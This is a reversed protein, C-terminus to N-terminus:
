QADPLTVIPCIKWKKTVIYAWLLAFFDVFAKAANAGARKRPKPAKVLPQYRDVLEGSSDLGFHELLLSFWEHPMDDILEWLSVEYLNERSWYRTTSAFEDIWRDYEVPDLKQEPHLLGFLTQLVERNLKKQHEIRAAEEVARKKAQRDKLRSSANAALAMLMAAVAIGASFALIQVSVEAVAKPVPLVWATLVLYLLTLVGFARLPTLWAARRPHAEVFWVHLRYEDFASIIIAVIAVLISMALITPASILGCVALLGYSKSLWKWGWEIEDDMSKEMLYFFVRISFILYGLAAAAAAAQIVFETWTTTVFTLVVLTIITALLALIRQNRKSSMRLRLKQLPVWVAVVRWYHCFTETVPPMGGNNLWWVYNKYHAADADVSWNGRALRGHDMVEDKKKRLLAM